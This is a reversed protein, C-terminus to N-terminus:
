SLNTREPLLYHRDHSGVWGRLILAAISIGLVSGALWFGTAQFDRSHTFQIVLIPIESLAAIGIAKLILIAHSRMLTKQIASFSLIATMGSFTVGCLFMCVTPGGLNMYFEPLKSIFSLPGGLDLHVLAFHPCIVLQVANLVTMLILIRAAVWRSWFGPVQIRPQPLFYAWLGAALVSGITVAAVIWSRKHDPDYLVSLLGFLGLSITTSFFLARALVSFRSHKEEDLAALIASKIEAENQM